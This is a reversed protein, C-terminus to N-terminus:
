ENSVTKDLRYPFERRCREWFDNGSISTLYRSFFDKTEREM